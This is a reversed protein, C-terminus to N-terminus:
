RRRLVRVRDAAVVRAGRAAPLSYTEGAAPGDLTAVAEGLDIEWSAMHVGVTRALPEAVGFRAALELASVPPNFRVSEGPGLGRAADLGVVSEDPWLIERRALDEATTVPPEHHVDWRFAASLPAGPALSGYLPGPLLDSLPVGHQAALEGITKARM